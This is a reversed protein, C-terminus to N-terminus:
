PASSRETGFTAMLNADIKYTMFRMLRSAGYSKIQAPNIVSVVIGQDCLFEALAERHIGIAEM